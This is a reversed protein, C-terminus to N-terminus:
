EKRRYLLLDSRRIECELKLQIANRHNIPHCDQTLFLFVPINIVTEGKSIIVIDKDWVLLNTCHFKYGSYNPAM